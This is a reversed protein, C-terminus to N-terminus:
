NYLRLYKLLAEIKDPNDDLLGLAKNCRGCLLGRKQGTVHNHDVALACVGTLHSNNSTEKEGCSKCRYDQEKALLEYEELTIGYWQKLRANKKNDRYEKDVLYREKHQQNVCSKCWYELGGPKSKKKSFHTLDKEIKCKSCQRM